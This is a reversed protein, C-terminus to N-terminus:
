ISPISNPETGGVSGGALEIQAENVMQQYLVQEAETDLNNWKRTKRSIHVFTGDPYKQYTTTHWLACYPCRYILKPIGFTQILANRVVIATQM